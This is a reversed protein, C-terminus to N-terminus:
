CGAGRGTHTYIHTHRHRTGSTKQRAGKKRRARGLGQERANKPSRRSRSGSAGGRKAQVRAGHSHVKAGPSGKHHPPISHMILFYFYCQDLFTCVSAFFFSLFFLSGGLIYLYWQDLFTYIYISSFLFSSGLTYFYFAVPGFVYIYIISSFFFLSGGGHFLLRFVYFFHLRFFCCRWSHQNTPTHATKVRTFFLVLHQIINLRPFFYIMLDSLAPCLLM